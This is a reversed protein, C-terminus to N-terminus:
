IFIEKQRKITSHDGFLYTHQFALSQYKDKGSIYFPHNKDIPIKFIKQNVKSVGIIMDKESNSIDMYWARSRDYDFMMCSDEFQEQTTAKTTKLDWGFSAANIYGDYLCRADLNFQIDAYQIAFNKKTFAKQGESINMINKCDPDNRFTNLIKKADKWEFQNFQEGNVQLKIHDVLHPTTIMADVLSGFRFIEELNAIDEACMFYKMMKTLDSNSVEKRNYYPDTTM